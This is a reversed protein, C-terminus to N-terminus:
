FDVSLTKVWMVCFANVSFFFISLMSNVLIVFQNENLCRYYYFVNSLCAVSKSFCRYYMPTVSSKYLFIFFASTCIVLFYLFYVMKKLQCFVQIAVKCLFTSCLPRFFYMFLLKGHNTM